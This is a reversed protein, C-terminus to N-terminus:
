VTLWKRLDGGSMSPQIGKLVIYFSYFEFKVLYIRNTLHLVHRGM